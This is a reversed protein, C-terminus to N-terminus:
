WDIDELSQGTIKHAPATWGEQFDEDKLVRQGIARKLASAEDDMKGTWKGIVLAKSGPLRIMWPTATRWPDDIEQTWGRVAVKRGWIVKYNTLIQAFHQKGINHVKAM